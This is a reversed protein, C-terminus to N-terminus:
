SFPVPVILLFFLLISLWGLIKRWGGLNSVDNLPAPHRLGSLLIFFAWIMWLRSGMLGLLLLAAFTLGALTYARKGFLAYAVHGGDLQGAPLLNLGTIFLGFWAAIFIPHPILAANAPVDRLLGVLGKVLLSSGLTRGVLGAPGVDSLLVGVILLPIAVLLGALPGALGVDFLVRRDKMPSKLAIFAGMTGLGNLPMPIFYPLTAAVGHLRAAVYHGLEHVGLIGLLTIAFPAGALLAQLLRVPSGSRVAAWLSVDYLAAGAALTTVITIVLLLVNVLPNGTRAKGLVGELAVVVDQGGERRLVPTYGHDNFRRQLEDYTFGADYLLRGAFSISNGRRHTRVGDIQFLGALERGLADITQQLPDFYPLSYTSQM